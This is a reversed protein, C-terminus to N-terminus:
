FIPSNNEQKVTKLAWKGIKGQWLICLHLHARREPSPVNKCGQHIKFNGVHAMGDHKYCQTFSTYTTYGSTATNNEHCSKRPARYCSHWAAVTKALTDRPFPIEIDSNYTFSGPLAPRTHTHTHFVLLHIQQDRQGFVHFSFPSIQCLSRINDWTLCFRCNLRVIYFHINLSSPDSPFCFCLLSLVSQCKPLSYCSKRQM